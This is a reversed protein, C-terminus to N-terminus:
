PLRHHDPNLYPVDALLMGPQSGGSYRNILFGRGLGPLDDIHISSGSPM